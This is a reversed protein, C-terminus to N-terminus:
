KFNFKFAHTVKKGTTKLKANFQNEPSFREKKENKCKKSM